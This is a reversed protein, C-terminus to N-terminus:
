GFQYFIYCSIAIASGWQLFTRFAKNNKVTHHTIAYPLLFAAIWGWWELTTGTRVFLYVVGSGVLLAITMAFYDANDSSRSRSSGSSSRPPKAKSNAPAKKHEREYQEQQKRAAKERERKEQERLIRAQQEKRLRAQEWYEVNTGTIIGRQANQFDDVDRQSAM